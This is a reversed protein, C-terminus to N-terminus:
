LHARRPRILRLNRRGAKRIIVKVIERASRRIAFASAGPNGKEDVGDLRHRRRCRRLFKRARAAGAIASRAFDGMGECRGIPRYRRLSKQYQFLGQERRADEEALAFVERMEINWEREASTAGSQHAIIESREKYTSFREDVAVFWDFIDSIASPTDPGDAVDVTIPM